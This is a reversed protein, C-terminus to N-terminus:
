EEKSVMLFKSWPDKSRFEGRGFKVFNELKPMRQREELLSGVLFGFWLSFMKEGLNEGKSWLFEWQRLM